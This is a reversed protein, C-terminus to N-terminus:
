GCTPNTRNAEYKFDLAAEDCAMGKWFERDTYTDEGELSM